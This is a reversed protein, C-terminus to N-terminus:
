FGRATRVEREFAFGLQEAMENISAGAANIGGQIFINIDGFSGGGRGGLVLDGQKIAQAFSRPIVMEGPTLMAPVSDTGTAFNGGIGVGKNGMGVAGMTASASTLASTTALAAATATVAANAGAVGMTAINVAIAAPIWAAAVSAGAAISAAVTGALLTKELAWAIVKQVMFDVITKIMMKGFEAFAEKASQVGTIVNTIASGLNAKISQSLSVTFAAMGQHAVKYNNKYENLLLMQEDMKVQNQMREENYLSAQLSALETLSVGLEKNRTIQNFSSELLQNYYDQGSTKGAEFLTRQNSVELNFATISSKAREINNYLKDGFADNFQKGLVSGLMVLPSFKGVLALMNTSALKLEDMSKRAETNRKAWENTALTIFGLVMTIAFLDRRFSRVASSVKKLGDDWVKHNEKVKTTQKEVVETSKGVEKSTDAMVKKLDASAKDVLSLIIKLENDQM